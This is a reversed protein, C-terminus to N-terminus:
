VMCCWVFCGCVACWVCRRGGGGEEEKRRVKDYRYAQWKAADTLDQNDKDAWSYMSPIFTKLEDGVM